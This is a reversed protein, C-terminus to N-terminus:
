DFVIEFEEKNDLINFEDPDGTGNHEYTFSFAVEGNEFDKETLYVYVYLQNPIRMDYAFKITRFSNNECKKIIERAVEEKDEITKQYLIISLRASCSNACSTTFDNVCDMEQEKGTSSHCVFIIVAVFLIVIFILIKKAKLM